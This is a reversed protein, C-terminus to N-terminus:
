KITFEVTGSGKYGGQGIVTAKAIGRNGNGTYVVKYDKGAKLTKKGVKVVVKPTVAKGNYTQTKIAAISANTITAQNIAFPITIGKTKDYNESNANLGKAKIIVYPGSVVDSAKGAVSKANKVTVTYATKEKLEIVKGSDKLQFSIAPKVNSGGAYTANSVTIELESIDLPDVRFKITQMSGTYNGKGTIVAEAAAIVNGDKDYAPKVNNKFKITYDKGEVLTTAGDKVKYLPKIDYGTYYESYLAEASFADNYLNKLTDEKNLVSVTFPYETYADAKLSRRNIKVSKVVEGAYEDLGYIRVKATGAKKDSGDVFEAMFDEGYTLTENTKKNTLTLGLDKENIGSTSYNQPKISDIKVNKIIYNKDIVRLTVITEGGFNGAGRVLLTYDGSKVFQSELEKYVTEGSEDTVKEVLVAKYDNRGLKKKGFMITLAPIKQDKGNDTLVPATIVLNKITLPTVAFSQTYAGAYSGKGTVTVTAGMVVEGDANYMVKTNKSYKVTYDKGATLVKSGYKVTISPKVAKGTYPMNHPKSITIGATLKTADDEEVLRKKTIEFKLTVNGTYKGIGVIIMQASKGVKINNVYTVKFDVDEKLIYEGDKIMIDNGEGFTYEIEEGTYVKAVPKFKGLTTATDNVSVTAINKIQVEELWFDAKVTTGEVCKGGNKAMIEAYAPEGSTSAKKNNYYKVTYDKGETLTLLVNGDEDVVDARVKPQVAKGKLVPYVSYVKGDVEKTENADEFTVKINNDSVTGTADEFEASVYVGHFPMQFKYRGEVDTKECPISVGNGSVTVSKTVYGEDPIADFTIFHGGDSTFAGVSVTGNESQIATIDYKGVLRANDISGWAGAINSSFEVKVTATTDNEGIIIQSFAPKVWNGYGGLKTEETYVMYPETAGKQTLALSVIVKDQYTNGGQLDIGFDYEGAPLNEKTQSLTFNVVGANWFNLAYSGASAAEAKVKFVDAATITDPNGDKDEDTAVTKSIDIDWGDWNMNEEFSGNTLLNAAGAIVELTWTVYFKTKYEDDATVTGNITYVAPEDTSILDLEEQNWVIDFAKASGDNFQVVAKTPLKTTYDKGLDITSASPNVVSIAAREARAGSDVYKFINLTDLPNGEFDFLAQNDIASGGYWLGADEPDYDVSYSSAWGSGYRDWLEKNADLQKQNVSGDANYANGVPLWAPEWYFVGIGNKTESVARIVDTLADAQGQLSLSYNLDQTAKPATNGHGDYDETTYVYSTEAVMVKKGYAAVAELKLKLNAPTGHWFPYYSTAFVDYDLGAEEFAAAWTGFDKSEPNTFHLTVLIEKGYDTEIQRIAKSGAAFIKIMPNSASDNSGWVGAIGANTENGVQVMGVDVGAEVLEKLSNYTYEEVKAAIGDYDNSAALDAWAKPAKQKAPDAWFDSYHFDILVKMGANTALKGMFIAKELDNNGGGYGNGDADYPDNWVRIRVYNIGSSKLLDFFGQEDLENGEFDKYTVGSDILSVYSSIDVGKIFDKPLTLKDVVIEAEVEELASVLGDIAAKLDNYAETIAESEEDDAIENEGEGIVEVAAAVAEELVAWSTSVYHEEVLTEAKAVLAKLKAGTIKLAEEISEYLIGDCIAWDAAEEGSMITTYVEKNTNGTYDSRYLTVLSNTEEADTEMESIEFGPWHSSASYDSPMGEETVKLVISYWNEKDEVPTMKYACAGKVPAKEATASIFLQSVEWVNFYLPLEGEYYYYVTKEVAVADAVADAEEKTAYGKLDKVFYTADEDAIFAAYIETNEWDASCGFVDTITNESDVESFWFGSAAGDNKIEFTFSYWYENDNLKTTKYLSEGKENKILEVSNEPVSVNSGWVGAALSNSGKYYLYLTKQEAEVGVSAAEKSAFYGGDKFYINGAAMKEMDLDSMIWYADAPYESLSVGDEGLTDPNIRVLEFSGSTQSADYTFGIKWWNDGDSQMKYFTNNWATEVYPSSKYDENVAYKGWINVGPALTDECYYYFTYDVTPVKLGDMAEQLANYAETVEASSNNETIAKAAALATAFTAWSDSTYESEKKGEATTILIALDELTKVATDPNETYFSGEKYYKEGKAFHSYAKEYDGESETDSFKMIWGSGDSGGYLDFAGVPVKTTITYWNNGESTLLYAYNTDWLKAEYTLGEIEASTVICASTGKDVPVYFHMEMEDTYTVTVEDGPEDGEGEGAGEGEAAEKSAYFTGDKYYFNGANFAERVTTDTVEVAETTTDEWSNGGAVWTPDSVLETAEGDIAGAPITVLNFKGWSKGATYEDDYNFKLSYWNSDEAKTMKYYNANEWSSYTYDAVAGDVPSYIGGSLEVAVTDEGEYYYHFTQEAAAAQVQMEPVTIGTMVLAVALLMSWARRLMESTRRSLKRM